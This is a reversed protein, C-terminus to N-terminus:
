TNGTASAYQVTWGSLSIPTSGRNFLEIFDQKFPAGSGGGGGYVQSIVVDSAAWAPSFVGALGLGIYIAVHQVTHWSNSARKDLNETGKATVTNVQM